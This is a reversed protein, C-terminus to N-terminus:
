FKSMKKARLTKGNGTMVALPKRNSILWSIDNKNKIMINIKLTPCGHRQDTNIIMEAQLELLVVLNFSLTIPQRRQKREYIARNKM